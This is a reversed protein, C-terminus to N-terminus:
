RGMALLAARAQWLGLPQGPRGGLFRTRRPGRGVHRRLLDSATAYLGALPAEPHQHELFLVESKYVNGIGSAVTQNLLLDAAATHPELLARARFVVQQLDVAPDLLDPGLRSLLKRERLGAARMLEAERANFCVLVDADTSLCISAQREPRRWVEGPAYRHWSGYMGLHSRVAVAGDIEIFLHKGVARVATVTRGALSIEPERRAPAGAPALYRRSAPHAGGRVWGQTLTRGLLRPELAAALKHITDGEPLV